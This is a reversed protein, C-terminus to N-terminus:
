KKNITRIQYFTLGSAKIVIFKRTRLGIRLSFQDGKKLPTRIKKVDEEGQIRKVSSFVNNIREVVYSHGDIELEMGISLFGSTNEVERCKNMTKDALRDLESEPKQNHNVSM